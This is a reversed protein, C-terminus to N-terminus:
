FSNLTLIQLLYEECTKCWLFLYWICHIKCLINLINCLLDPCCYNWSVSLLIIQITTCCKLLILVNKRDLFLFCFFFSIFPNNYMYIISIPVTYSTQFCFTHPMPLSSSQQTIMYVNLTLDNARAFIFIKFAYIEFVNKNNVHLTLFFASFICFISHSANKNVILWYQNLSHSPSLLCCVM